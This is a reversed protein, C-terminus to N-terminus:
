AVPMQPVGQEKLFRRLSSRSLGKQRAAEAVPVGTAVLDLAACLLIRSAPPRGLRKGQRRARDLGAKTRLILREREQEAIWSFIAVLLSRVPGGTDLWPEQVSVVKVGIRDLELVTQLNGVMSRGFRDLSWVLLVDFKGAHAAKLMRDFEPRVKAASMVEDFVEVIELGRVAALRELDPTQNSTTQGLAGSVRKYVVARQRGQTSM